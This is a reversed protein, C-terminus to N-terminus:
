EPKEEGKEGKYDISAALDQVFKAAYAAEEANEAVNEFNKQDMNKIECAVVSRIAERIERKRSRNLSSM